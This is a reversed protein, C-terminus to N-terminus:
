STKPPLPMALTAEAGPAVEVRGSEGILTLPAGGELRAYVAQPTWHLDLRRGGIRLGQISANKWERPFRPAIELVSGEGRPTLGWLSEFLATLFPAISFGLLFCSNFPEARDGRYCEHAMGRESVIRDAICTLLDVGTTPEQAQFAAAAAWATAITWVQGDHYAIPDFGPDRDSLTRMGWPARLDGRMARALIQKAKPLPFLDAWVARLANPRVKRIPTGDTKRSDLLYGEEPWDYLTPIATAVAESQQKLSASLEARDFRGALDALSQLALYWLVQVDIAHDRRDTSDWITTDHADFGYRVKEFQDGAAQLQALEGGNRVLGTKPDTRARGWAVM